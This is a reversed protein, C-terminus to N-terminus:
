AGHAATRRRVGGVAVYGVAAALSAPPILVWPTDALDWIVGLNVAFVVVHLALLSLGIRRSLLSCLFAAAAIALGIVALVESVDLRHVESEGCGDGCGLAASLAMAAFWFLTAGLYVVAALSRGLMGCM